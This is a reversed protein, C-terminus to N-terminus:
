NTCTYYWVNDTIKLTIMKMNSVKNKFKVNTSKVKGTEKKHSCQFSLYIVANSIM